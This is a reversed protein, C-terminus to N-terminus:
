RTSATLDRRGRRPGSGCTSAPGLGDHAYWDVLGDFEEKGPIRRAMNLQGGIRDAKDFLTVRHGREAATIAAALGAPGAGVVAIRKAAAAPTIM